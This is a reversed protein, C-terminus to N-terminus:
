ATSVSANVVAAFSYPRSRLRKGTSAITESTMVNLSPIMSSRRDPTERPCLSRSRAMSRHSCSSSRSLPALRHSCALRILVPVDLAVSHLEEVLDEAFALRGDQEQRRPRDDM